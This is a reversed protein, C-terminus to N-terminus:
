SKKSGLRDAPIGQTGHLQEIIEKLDPRDMEDQRTLEPFRYFLARIAPPAGVETLIEARDRDPYKRFLPYIDRTLMHAALDSVVRYEITTTGADLQVGDPGFTGIYFPTHLRLDNTDWGNQVQWPELVSHMVSYISVKAVPNPTGDSPAGGLKRAVYRAFSCAVVKGEPSLKRTTPDDSSIPNAMQDFLLVTCLHRQYPMRLTWDARRPAELWRVSGDAYTGTGLDAAANNDRTQWQGNSRMFMAFDTGFYDGNQSSGLGFHGWVSPDGGDTVEALIFSVSLPKDAYNAEIAFNRNLSARGGLIGSNGVVIMNGGNSHQATYGGGPAFVSYTIPAFSGGQTTAITNNFTSADTNAVDFNDTLLPASHVVTSLALISASVRFSPSANM